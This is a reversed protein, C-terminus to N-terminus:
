LFTLWEDTFRFMFWISRAVTSGSPVHAIIVVCLAHGGRMFASVSYRGCWNPDVCQGTDLSVAIMFQYEHLTRSRLEWFQMHEVIELREEVEIEWRGRRVVGGCVCAAGLM